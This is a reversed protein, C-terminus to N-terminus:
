CADEKDRLINLLKQSYYELNEIEERDLVEKNDVMKELALNIQEITM